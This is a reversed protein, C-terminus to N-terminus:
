ILRDWASKVDGIRVDAGAKTLAMGLMRASFDVEERDDWGGCPGILFSQQDIHMRLTWYDGDHEDFQHCIALEITTSVEWGRDCDSGDM